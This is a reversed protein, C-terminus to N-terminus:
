AEANEAEQAVAGIEPYEEDDILSLARLLGNIDVVIQARLVGLQDSDPAFVNKRNRWNNYTGRSVGIREAMETDKAASHAGLLQLIIPDLETKDTRKKVPNPNKVRKAPEGSAQVLALVEDVVDDGYELEAGQLVRLDDTTLGFRQAAANALIDDDEVFILELDAYVDMIAFDAGLHNKMIAIVGNLDTPEAVDTNEQPTTVDKAANAALHQSLYLELDGNVIGANALLQGPEKGHMLMKLIEKGMSRALRVAAGDEWMRTDITERGLWDASLKEHWPECFTEVLDDLASEYDDMASIDVDDHEGNELTFGDYLDQLQPEFMKAFAEVAVHEVDTAVVKALQEITPNRKPALGPHTLAKEILAGKDPIFESLYFTMTERRKATNLKVSQAMQLLLDRFQEPTGIRPASDRGGGRAGVEGLRKARKLGMREVVVPDLKMESRGWELEPLEVDVAYLMTPKRAYHGYKGQEVCCTYGGFRDAVIWGGTRKPVKLGFHPWAHSQWPHELVGGFRRVASLAAAFCGDDDGKKKRIGTQKIFLPQGAWLKGWRQCPPHAVVAYPGSYTRADRSLDWADVGELGFYCGDTEVYLAAIM